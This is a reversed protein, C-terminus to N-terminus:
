ITILILTSSCWQCSGHNESSIQWGPLYTKQGWETASFFLSLDCLQYIFSPNKFTLNQAREGVTSSLPTFSLYYCFSSAYIFWPFVEDPLGNRWYHTFLLFHLVRLLWKLFCIQLFDLYRGIRYSSYHLCKAATFFGKQLKLFGPWSGM